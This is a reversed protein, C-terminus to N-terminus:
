ASAGKGVRGMATEGNGVNGMVMAGMAVLCWEDREIAMPGWQTLCELLGGAGMSSHAELLGRDGMLSGVGWSDHEIVM